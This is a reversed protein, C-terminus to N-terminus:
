QLWNSLVDQSAATEVQQSFRDSYLALLNDHPGDASSCVADTVVVVRYGLDVAGLVAALVCVDTEAGTIVITDVGAQRLQKHLTTGLWPSYVRKDVVREHQAFHQLPLALDILAPDLAELTMSSWRRWYGVWEGTADNPNAAPIFRTFWVQDPRADCLEVIVPLVREAWPAQWDTMEVFMRQMDICLHAANPSIPRKLVSTM